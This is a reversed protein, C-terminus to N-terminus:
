LYHIKVVNGKPRLSTPFGCMRGHCFARSWLPMGGVFARLALDFIVLPRSRRLAGDRGVYHTDGRDAVGNDLQDACYETPLVVLPGLRAAVEFELRYGAGFTARVAESMVSTISDLRLARTAWDDRWTDRCICRTM